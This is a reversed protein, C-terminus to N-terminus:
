ATIPKGALVTKYDEDFEKKFTDLAWDSSDHGSLSVMQVGIKKLLTIARKVDEENLGNWPMRDTGVLKQLNIPGLMM